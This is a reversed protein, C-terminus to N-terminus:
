RRNYRPRPKQEVTTTPTAEIPAAEAITSTPPAFLNGACVDKCLKQAIYQCHEDNSAQYPLGRIRLIRPIGGSYEASVGKTLTKQIWPYQDPIVASHRKAYTFQPDM